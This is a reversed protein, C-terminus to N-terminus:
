KGWLDPFGAEEKAKDIKRTSALEQFGVPPLPLQNREIKASSNPQPAETWDTRQQNIM